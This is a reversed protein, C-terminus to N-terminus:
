QCEYFKSKGAFQWVFSDANFITLMLFKTKM